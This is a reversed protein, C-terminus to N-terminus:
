LHPYQAAFPNARCHYRARTLPITKTGVVHTLQNIEVTVTATVNGVSSGLLLSATGTIRGAIGDPTILLLASGDTVRVGIDDAEAVTGGDDGVFLELHTIGIRIIQEDDTTNLVGDAGANRVQEFLFVGEISQGFATISLPVADTGLQIRVFKGAPLNLGLGADVVPATTTNIELHVATSGLTFPLSSLGVLQITASVDIAVGTPLLLISGTGATIQGEHTM